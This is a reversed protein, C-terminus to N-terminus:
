RAEKVFFSYNGVLIFEWDLARKKIGEDTTAAIVKRYGLIRASAFLKEIIEQLAHHRDFASTRPNTVFCELFCSNGETQLLFGAAINPAFFGIRPLEDRTTKPKDHAVYWENLDGMDSDEFRRIM